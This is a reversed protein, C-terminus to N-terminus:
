WSLWASFRSLPNFMVRPSYAARYGRYAEACDPFHDPNSASRARNALLSAGVTIRHNPSIHGLRSQGEGWVEGWLPSPTTRTPGLSDHLPSNMRRRLM